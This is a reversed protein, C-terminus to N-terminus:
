KVVRQLENMVNNIVTQWDGQTTQRFLQMTPYWPSDSRDLFFRWESAYQLMVWTPIGMAGSLHAISTDITIVLDLNKMVAATDVFAGNDKDFHDDFIHLKSKHQPNLDNIQESGYGQQLSYIEINEMKFLQVLDTLKMARGATQPDERLAGQWCIGIRFKEKNGLKAAWQDVFKQDVFLYPIEDPITEISTEFIEPFYTTPLQYDFAPLADNKTIIQDIYPSYSLLQVLPNQTQCIVYAGRKKLEIAYRIYMFTDGLGWQCYILVKKNTIDEGRWLKEQFQKEHQWRFKFGAMGRKFDGLALYLDGLDWNAPWDDPRKLLAPKLYHLAEEIQGTVKYKRGQSFLDNFNKTNFLIQEDSNLEILDALLEAKSFPYQFFILLTLLFVGRM